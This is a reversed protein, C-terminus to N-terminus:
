ASTFASSAAASRSISGALRGRQDLHVGAAVGRQVAQPAQLLGVLLVPGDLPQRGGRKSRASAVATCTRLRVWRVRKVSATASPTSDSRSSPM